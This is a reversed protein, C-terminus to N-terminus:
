DMLRVNYQRVTPQYIKWDLNAEKGYIAVFSDWPNYVVVEEGEDGLLDAPVCHYWGRRKQGQPTPLGPLAGVLSGDGNWLSGGNYLLATQGPGNWFVAEMGTNNPSHNLEFRRLIKGEQRVIMVPTAHGDYRIAMEPGPSQPDFDAVRLEQGHPVLDEGLKLLIKGTEDLIHGFGSGFARMTGNDWPAITVSDMNRGLQEEWMVSGDDDLLFYGGNVEDKDDGDIDGVSPIYAPCKTYEDWPNTYSWLVNLNEDMALLTTGLKVVFDRPSDTGRLNCIFLRQHVWNPGEGKAALLAAPAAEKEVMGTKGDRIQIVVDRMSTPPCTINPDHWFCIIETEGDGDIDHIAVPGPRTPQVGGKGQQWLIQGDKDFAGLFCPKMGSGDDQVDDQSRYVLFDVQGNNSLDGIRIDGGYIINKPGQTLFPEPVGLKRILQPDSTETAHSSSITLLGFLLSLLLPAVKSM